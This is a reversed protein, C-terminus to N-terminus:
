KSYVVGNEDTDGERSPKRRKKPKPASKKGSDSSKATSSDKSTGEARAAPVFGVAIWAFSAFAVTFVLRRGIM